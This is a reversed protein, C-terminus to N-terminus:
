KLYSKGCYLTKGEYKVMAWGNHMGHYEVKTGSKVSKYINNGYSASTRLNLWSCNTVTMYTVTEVKSVICDDNVWGINGGELLYPNRAGEIIKTIRGKTKVPTLRTDSTSSVYVGNITVTDGIKYKSVKSSTSGPLDSNLYNYPNIRENGKWIEFHLHGGFSYGTNGMYGLVQGKSVKDGVKVKVSGYALHLYRTYYGNGHDIKVMNGPNTSDTKTNIKCNSIVQIVKGESHSVIDDLQYGDKVLDIGLHSSKFEQTITCKGSKLVRCNM